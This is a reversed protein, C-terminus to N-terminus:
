QLNTGPRLRLRRMTGQPWTQVTAPSRSYATHQFVSIGTKRSSFEQRGRRTGATRHQEPRCPQIRRRILNIRPNRLDHGPGNADVHVVMDIGRPRFRMRLTTLRLPLLLLLLSGLREQCFFEFPRPKGGDTRAEHQIERWVVLGAIRSVVEKAPERRDVRLQFLSVNAARQVQFVQLGRVVMTLGRDDLRDFPCLEDLPLQVPHFLHVFATHPVKLQKVLSVVHHRRQAVRVRRGSVKTTQRSKACLHHLLAVPQPDQHVKRVGTWSVTSPANFTAVCGSMTDWVLRSLRVPPFGLIASIIFGRSILLSCAFTTASAPPTIPTHVFSASESFSNTSLMLAITSATPM